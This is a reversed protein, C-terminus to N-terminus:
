FVHHIIIISSPHVLGTSSSQTCYYMNNYVLITFFHIGSITLLSKGIENLEKAKDEVKKAYLLYHRLNYDMLKGMGPVSLVSEDAM